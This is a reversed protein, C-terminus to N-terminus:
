RESKMRLHARWAVCWHCLCQFSGRNHAGFEVPLEDDLAIEETEREFRYSVGVSSAALTLHDHRIRWCEVRGADPDEIVVHEITM